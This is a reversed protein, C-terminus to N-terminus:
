QFNQKHQLLLFIMLTVIEAYLVLKHVHKYLLIFYVKNLSRDLTENPGAKHVQTSSFSKLHNKFWM